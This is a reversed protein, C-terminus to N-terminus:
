VCPRLKILSVRYMPPKSPMDGVVRSFEHLIDFVLSLTENPYGFVSFLASYVVRLATNQCFKLHKSLGHFM